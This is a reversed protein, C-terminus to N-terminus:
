QPPRARAVIIRGEIKPAVTGKEEIYEMVHNAILSAEQPDVLMKARTLSEYGDGGHALFDNTALSYTKAPDLPENGVMVSVVREGVPRTLDARVTLGSVQPFRGSEDEAESFGQELAAKLEDGTVGLVLTMNNFPLETLVDRWTLESGARYIKNGRFSGGNLLGIDAKTRERIADTFLDGIASEGGRVAANRSDLEIETKGIVVNFAQDLKAEYGKVKALVDQDPTVAATDVIRFNPWWSVRRKGDKEAVAIDLDIAVLYLGDQMAEGFAVKGNYSVMLDHDHGSLIVDAVGSAILREDMPRPAHAVLVILDAGEGRLRQSLLFATELSDTFKLDGPKSMQASQEATLGIIGLKVGEIDKIAYGSVGPLPKGDAGLLNAAYVPFNAEGIRKMFVDPGFDFEHNGPVFIDLDVANWLDIMHAGQDQASLLSPSLTDGAHVMFFHTARGREQKVLAAIRPLGGRGDEENMKYVDSTLLFTIKVHRPEAARAPPQSALIPALCALLALAWALLGAFPPLFRCNVITERLAAAALGYRWKSLRM